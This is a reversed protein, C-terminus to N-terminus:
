RDLRRDEPIAAWLSEVCASPVAGSPRSWERFAAAAAPILEDVGGDRSYDTEEDVKQGSLCLIWTRKPILHAIAEDDARAALGARELETRLQRVRESVEGIDADIAVVLATNAHRQRFAQVAPAYRQRVSQEGASRRSPLPPFRIDRGVYGLKYLYRRVFQQRHQDEVLVM